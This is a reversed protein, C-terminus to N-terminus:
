KRHKALWDDMQAIEKSQSDVVARALALLEPDKGYQLEVQAMDVAGQHHPLMMVVFDRDADGTPKAHMHAMMTAMAKAYGKDSATAGHAAMAHDMKRETTNAATAGLLALAILAPRLM